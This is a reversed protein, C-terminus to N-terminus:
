SIAALQEIPVGQSYMTVCRNTCREYDRFRSEAADQDGYVKWCGSVKFDKAKHKIFGTVDEAPYGLFLGVEHPFYNHEEIGDRIKKSLKAICCGTNEPSYGFTRLLSAVEDSRFYDGLESPRYVYILARNDSHRLPIIRVGKPGLLRNLMRVQLNMQNVSRIPALFLNGPKIGMLTPACHQVVQEESM